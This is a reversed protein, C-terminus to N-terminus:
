ATSRTRVTPTRARPYFVTMASRAAGELAPAASESSTGSPLSGVKAPNDPHLYGNLADFLVLGTNGASLHKELRALKAM